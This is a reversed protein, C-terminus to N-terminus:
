RGRPHEVTLLVLSSALALAIGLLCLLLGIGLSAESSSWFIQNWSNAIVLGALVAPFLPMVLNPRWMRLTTVVGALFLLVAATVMVPGIGIADLATGLQFGTRHTAGRSVWPLAVGPGMVAAGAIALPGAIRYRRRDRAPQSADAAARATDAAARATDTTAQATTAQGTTAQATPAPVTTVTRVRDLHEYAV